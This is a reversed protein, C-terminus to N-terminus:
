SDKPTRSSSQMYMVSSPGAQNVTGGSLRSSGMDGFLWDIGQRFAEPSASMHTHAPLNRVELKWPKAPASQWYSIWKMMPLHFREGNLEAESVFLRTSNEPMPSEGQWELFYNLNRHLAPNSAIHGWFLDPRTLSNFLVFQGGLSQGFLIRHRPDAPYASEVLPLVERELVKQFDPAGGWWDRETSAATYDNSRFNGEEYTNAGYSIGVLIMEPLEEAARLYHYYASLLPFNIGGDLLYTVPYSRGPVAKYDDPLRVYVHFPRKLIRSDLRHYHVVGLGQLYTM